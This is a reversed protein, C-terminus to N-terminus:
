VAVLEVKPKRNTPRMPRTSAPVSFGAGIQEAVEHRYEADEAL